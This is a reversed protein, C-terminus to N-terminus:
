RNAPLQFVILLKVSLFFFFIFLVSGGVTRRFCLVTDSERQSCSSSKPSSPNTCIFRGWSLHPPDASTATDVKQTVSAAEGHTWFAHRCRQGATLLYKMDRAGLTHESSWGALTLRQPWLKVSHAYLHTNLWLCSTSAPDLTTLIQSRQDPQLPDPSKKM